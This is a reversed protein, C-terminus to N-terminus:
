KKSFLEFIINSAEVVGLSRDKVNKEVIKVFEKEKLYKNIFDSSKLNISEWLWKLRQSDRNIFFKKNKKRINTFNQIFKWIKDLGNLNLSSCKFIELNEQSDDRGLISVANSYERVTLDASKELSGDAKNVIIVDALEIIGKKIGQLEDGGTPLLLVLFIDVMDCVTTEAQGVGMTEIFIINYGANELCIISERTKKAVGGLHGDSASPRIFANENVSLKQMRTKDGLISGGTKKSSPDVALVAVKYGKEILKIGLSEIFTSKGVGPVGTIGIRITNNEPKLKQLLFETNQIDRKLSSEIMTIAKALHFRSGKRLDLILKELSEIDDGNIKKEENKTNIFDNATVIGDTLSYIKELIQKEQFREGSLYRSLSIPSIGLKRSFIKQTIKYTNLFTRLNM